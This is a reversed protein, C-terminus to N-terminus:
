QNKEGNEGDDAVTAGGGDTGPQSALADAQRAPADLGSTAIDLRRASEPASAAIRMEQWRRRAAQMKAMHAERQEPTMQDWRSRGAKAASAKLEEPTMNATRTRGGLRGADRVSLKDTM